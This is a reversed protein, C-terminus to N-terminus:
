RAAAGGARDLVSSVLRAAQTDSYAAFFGLLFAIRSDDEFDNLRFGGFGITIAESLLIVALGATVVAVMAIRLAPGYKPVDFKGIDQYSVDISGLYAFFCIGLGIGVAIWAADFLQAEGCRQSPVGCGGSFIAVLLAFAAFGLGWRLTDMLFEQRLRPGELEVLGREILSITTTAGALKEENFGLSAAGHLQQWFQGRRQEAVLRGIKNHLVWVRELLALDDPSPSRGNEPPTKIDLVEPHADDLPAVIFAANSM